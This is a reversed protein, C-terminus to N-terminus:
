RETVPYHLMVISMCLHLLPILLKNNICLNREPKTSNHVRRTGESKPKTKLITFQPLVAM